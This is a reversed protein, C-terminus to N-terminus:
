GLTVADEEIQRLLRANTTSVDLGPVSKNLEALIDEDAISGGRDLTTCRSALEASGEIGPIEVEFEVNVLLNAQSFSDQLLGEILDKASCAAALQLQQDSQGVDAMLAMLEERVPRLNTEDVWPLVAAADRFIGKSQDDDFSGSIFTGLVEPEPATVTLTQNFENYTVSLGDIGQTAITVFPVDKFEVTEDNWSGFGPSTWTKIATITRPRYAIGLSGQSEISYSALSTVELPLEVNQNLRGAATAFATDALEGAFVGTAKAATQVSDDVVTTVADYSRQFPNLWNLMGLMVVLVLGLGLVTKLVPKLHKAYHLLKLWM